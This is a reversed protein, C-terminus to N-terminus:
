WDNVLRLEPMYSDAIPEKKSIHSENFKNLRALFEQVEEPSVEDLENEIAPETKVEAQRVAVVAPRLEKHVYVRSEQRDLQALFIIMLVCALTFGIEIPRLCNELFMDILDSLSSKESNDAYVEAMIREHLDVPYQPEPLENLNELMESRLKKASSCDPCRAAHALIDQWEATESGFDKKELFDLYRSCVKM